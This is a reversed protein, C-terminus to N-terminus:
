MNSLHSSNGLFSKDNKIEHIKVIHCVKALRPLTDRPWVVGDKGKWVDDSGALLVVHADPKLPSTVIKIGNQSVRAEEDVSIIAAHLYNATVDLVPRPIKTIRTPLYRTVNDGIGLQGEGNEGWGFIEGDITV